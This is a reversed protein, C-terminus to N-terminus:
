ALRLGPEIEVPGSAAQGRGLRWAGAVAIMSGNDGCHQLMPVHVPVPAAQRMDSRLRGNASVGGSVIISAVALMRAASVTKEVLVEVVAQEFALALEAVFRPDGPRVRADPDRLIRRAETPGLGDQVLRVVATKLGSFSFDHSGPLRARPLEFPTSEIRAAAQEIAPGGPFPLGVLRAVKDFAEGAADDRTRGILRYEGPASAHILETHGGSVILALVPFEPPATEALWPAAFHGELHNVAVLPRDLGFALGQAFEVGVLLSGPLGPGYTVAVADVQDIGLSAAGLAAALVRDIVEAHIRSAVEPVIGGYAAHPEIQSQSILALERRGRHVVGVSTDDCSTEIGLVLGADDASLAAIGV